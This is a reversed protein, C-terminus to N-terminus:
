TVTPVQWRIVHRAIDALGTARWTMSVYKSDESGSNLPMRHMVLSIQWPGNRAVDDVRM